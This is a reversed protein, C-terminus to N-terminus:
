LDDLVNITDDMIFPGRGDGPIIGVIITPVLTLDLPSSEEMRKIRQRQEEIIEELAILYDKM